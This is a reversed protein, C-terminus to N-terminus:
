TADMNELIKVILTKQKRYNLDTQKNAEFASQMKNLDAAVTPFSNALKARNSLMERIMGEPQLQAADGEGAYVRAMKKIFDADGGKIGDKSIKELKKLNDEAAALRIELKSKNDKLETAADVIEQNLKTLAFGTARQLERDSDAKDLASKCERFLSGCSKIAAKRAVEVAELAGM